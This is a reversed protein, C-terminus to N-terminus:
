VKTLTQIEHNLNARASAEYTEFMAATYYIRPRQLFHRLVGARETSYQPEPVWSYEQRIAQAYNVYDTTAVGLIALDADLLIQSDPSDAQHQKTALILNTTLSITEAPLKLELLHRQAVAASREENDPKFASLLAEWRAALTPDRRPRM